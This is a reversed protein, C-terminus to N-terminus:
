LGAVRAAALARSFTYCGEGVESSVTSTGSSFTVRPAAGVSGSPSCTLQAVYGLSAYLRVM